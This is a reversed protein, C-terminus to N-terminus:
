IMAITTQTKQQSTHVMRQLPISIQSHILSQFMFCFSCLIYLSFTTLCSEFFRAAASNNALLLSSSSAHISLFLCKCSSGTGGRATKVESEFSKRVNSLASSFTRYNYKKFQPFDKIIQSPTKGATQGDSVLLKLLKGDVNKSDWSTIEGKANVKAPGKSKAKKNKSNPHVM